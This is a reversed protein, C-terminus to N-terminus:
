APPLWLRRRRRHTDGAPSHDRLSESLAGLLPSCASHRRVAGAAPRQGATGDPPWGAAAATPTPRGGHRGPRRPTTETGGREGRSIPTATIM